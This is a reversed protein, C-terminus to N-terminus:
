RSLRWTNFSDKTKGWFGRRDGLLERDIKCHQLMNAVFEEIAPDNNEYSLVAYEESFGTPPPSCQPIRDPTEPGSGSACATSFIM